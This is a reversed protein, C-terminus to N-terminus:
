RRVRRAVLLVVLGLGGVASTHSCGGGGTYRGPVIVLVDDRPDDVATGAVIEDGDWAGGADTDPDTPDAGVLLEDADDLTDGDTDVRAPDTGLLLEEGDFLGDADSDPDRPDTGIADEDPNTVGDQDLDLALEVPELYVTVDTRQVVAGCGWLWAGVWM